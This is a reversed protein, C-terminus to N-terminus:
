FHHRVVFGGEAYHHPTRTGLTRWEQRIVRLNGDLIGLGFHDGERHVFLIGEKLQSPRAQTCEQYNDRERRPFRGVLLEDDGRGVGHFFRGPFRGPWPNVIGDRHGNTVTKRGLNAHINLDVLAPWCM